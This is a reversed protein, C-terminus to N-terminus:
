SIMTAAIMRVRQLTPSLPIEGGPDGFADYFGCLWNGCHICHVDDKEDIVTERHKDIHSNCRNCFLVDKHIHLPASM